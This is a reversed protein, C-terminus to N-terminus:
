GKSKNKAPPLTLPITWGSIINWGDAIMVKHPNLSQHRKTAQPHSPRKGPVFLIAVKTAGTLQGSSADAWNTELHCKFVTKWGRLQLRTGKKRALPWVAAKCAGPHKQIHAFGREGSLHMFGCLFNPFTGKQGSWMAVTKTWQTSNKGDIVSWFVEM